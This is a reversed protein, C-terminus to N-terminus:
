LSDISQSETGPELLKDPNLNIYEQCHKISNPYKYCETKLQQIALDLQGNYWYMNALEIHFHSWGKSFHIAIKLNNIALDPNHNQWQFLAHKYAIKAITLNESSSSLNINLNQYALKLLYDLKDLDNSSVYFNALEIYEKPNSEKPNLSFVQYFYKENKPYTLIKSLERNTQTDNQYLISTSREFDPLLAQRANLNFPDAYLSTLNQHSIFLFDSVTKSIFFISIIILIFINLKSYLKSKPISASIFLPNQNFIFFLSLCFIGISNWSPDLFSNILSTLGIVFNLPNKQRQFLLSSIIAVFIILTFPLGNLSLYEIFSNHAYNTNTYPVSQYKKNIYFFNGPGNGFIPKEIFAQFAEQWYEPRSGDLSKTVRNQSFLQYNLFIALTFMLIGLPIRFHKKLKPSVIYLTSLTISIIASRSNTLILTIFIFVLSFSYFYWLKKPLMEFSLLSYLLFPISFILFDALYSHGWIQLIFNDFYSDAGITLLQLKNLLFIVSYFLSFYLIIKSINKTDLYKLCLNLIVLSFIFNFFGYYSYGINKSLISSILSLLVLVIEFYIIKKTLHKPSPYSFSAVLFIITGGYLVLSEAYNIAKGFLPLILIFCSLLLNFTM